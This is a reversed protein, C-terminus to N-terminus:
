KYTDIRKITNLYEIGTGINLSNCFSQYLKVDILKKDHLKILKQNYEITTKLRESDDYLFLHKQDPNLNKVGPKNKKIMYLYMHDSYMGERKGRNCKYCIPRINDTTYRGKNSKHIVHGYECHPAKNKITKCCSFCPGRDSDGCWTKWVEKKVQEHSSRKVLQNDIIDESETMSESYSFNMSESADESQSLTNDRSEDKIIHSPINIPKIIENIKSQDTPNLIYQTNIKPLTKNLNKRFIIPEKGRITKLKSRDYDHYRTEYLINDNYEHKHLYQKVNKTLKKQTDSNGIILSLKITDEKSIKSKLIKLSLCDPDIDESFLKLYKNLIDNVQKFQNTPDDNIEENNPDDHKDDKQSNISERKSKFLNDDIDEDDSYDFKIMSTDSALYYKIKFGGYIINFYDSLKIEYLDDSLIDIYPYIFEDFYKSSVTHEGNSDIVKYDKTSINYNIFKRLINININNNEISWKMGLFSFGIYLYKKDTNYTNYTSNYLHTIENKTFDKCYRVFDKGDKTKNYEKIQLNDYLLSHNITLHIILLSFEESLEEKIQLLIFDGARSRCHTVEKDIISDDKDIISIDKVIFYTEIVKRCLLFDNGDATFKRIDSGKPIEVIFDDDNMM